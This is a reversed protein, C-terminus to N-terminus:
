QINDIVQLKGRFEEIEKYNNNRMLKKLEEGIRTFCKPGEKVLQSGIQVASAGCLIHEFVHAGTSVGGCGIIDLRDGLLKYFQNVNALATPRCYEGGIGGYGDKPNIRTTQNDIDILLGNVVSNITTLFGINNSYKQILNSVQEFTRFEYYPPLKLGVILNSLNLQNLSDLYIDLSEFDNGVISKNIINPCSLNLEVFYPVKKKSLRNIDDKKSLRNIDDKKSLRNIDYLMLNMEDINFPMISQIYPKYEIVESHDLYYKYGFNPVGMSNITGLEDQYFRPLSNGKRPEVTSSKSVVAGSFSAYIDDLEDTHTCWCGSANMLLSDFKVDCITTHLM